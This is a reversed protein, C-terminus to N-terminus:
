KDIRKILVCERDEKKGCQYKQENGGRELFGILIRLNCENYKDLSWLEKGKRDKKCGQVYYPDFCYFFEKEYRFLAIYHLEGNKKNDAKVSLLACSNKNNVFRKLKEFDVDEGEMYTAKISFNKHRYKSLWHCLNAIEQGSTGKPDNITKLYIGQVVENPIEERKNFLYVLANVFSTPVCDYGTIQKRFEIKRMTM